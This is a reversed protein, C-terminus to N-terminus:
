PTVGAEQDFKSFDFGSKQMEQGSMPDYGLFTNLDNKLDKPIAPGLENDFKALGENTFTDNRIANRTWDALKANRTANADAVRVMLIRGEKTTALSPFARKYAGFEMDSTSGSGPTRVQTAGVNALSDVVQAVSAEETNLGLFAQLDGKIKVLGGTEMDGIVDNIMRTRRAIERSKSADGQISEYIKMDGEFMIKEKEPMKVTASVNTARYKEIDKTYDTYSGPYGGQKAFLYDKYNNTYGLNGIMTKTFEEPNSIAQLQQEPTLNQIMRFLAAQKNQKQGLDFQSTQIDLGTKTVDLGGKILDQRLKQMNALDTMGQQRGSIFGLGTRGLALPINQKKAAADALNTIAGTLGQTTVYSESGTLDTVGPVNGLGQLPNLPDLLGNAM